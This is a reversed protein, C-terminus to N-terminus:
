LSFKSITVMTITLCVSAVKGMSHEQSHIIKKKVPFPPYYAHMASRAQEHEGSCTFTSARICSYVNFINAMNLVARRTNAQKNTAVRVHVVCVYIFSHIRAPPNHEFRSTISSGNDAGHWWVASLNTTRQLEQEASMIPFTNSSQLFVLLLDVLREAIM